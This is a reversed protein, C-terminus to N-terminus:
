GEFPLFEITQEQYGELVVSVKIIFKEPEYDSNNISVGTVEEVFPEELFQDQIRSAIEQKKAFTLTANQYQLIGVGFTPRHIISGPVTILRRLLKNKVKDLGVETELDGGDTRIMDKRHKIDRLYYEELTAM